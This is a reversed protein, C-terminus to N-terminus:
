VDREVIVGVCTMERIAAEGGAQTLPRTASLLVHTEFGARAADLASARVCVDLALGCIFVRQTGRRRLLDILGTGEFASYQDMEPDAGKSVVLADEPLRLQEHFRAGESGAVCHEPWPGGRAEFSVHGKPHWDRSAAVTAGEATAEGILQNITPVIEDAGVIALAGGACFDRQVEVVILADDQRFRM